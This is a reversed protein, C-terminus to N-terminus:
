YDVAVQGTHETVLAMDMEEEENMGLVMVMIPRTKLNYMVNANVKVPLVLIEAAAEEMAVYMMTEEVTCANKCRCCLTADMTPAWLRGNKHQFVGIRIQSMLAMLSMALNAEEVEETVV